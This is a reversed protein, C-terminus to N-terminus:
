AQRWVGVFPPALTCYVSLPYAETVKVNAQVNGVFLKRGARHAKQSTSVIRFFYGYEAKRLGPERTQKEDEQEHIVRARTAIERKVETLALQKVHMERELM